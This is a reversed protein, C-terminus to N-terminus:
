KEDHAFDVVEHWLWTEVRASLLTLEYVVERDKEEDTMGDLYEPVQVLYLEAVDPFPRTARRIRVRNSSITAGDPTPLTLVAVRGRDLEPVKPGEPATTVYWVGPRDGTVFRMVRSSPRGAEDTSSLVVHSTRAAVQEFRRLARDTFAAHQPVERHQEKVFALAADVSDFRPDAELFYLVQPVYASIDEGRHYFRLWRRGANLDQSYAARLRAEKRDLLRRGAETRLLSHGLPIGLLGAVLAAAGVPLQWGREDPMTAVVARDLVGALVAVVVAVLSVLVARHRRLEHGLADAARQRRKLHLERQKMAEVLREDTPSAFGSARRPRMESTM